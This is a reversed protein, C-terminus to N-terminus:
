KCREDLMCAAVADRVAPMIDDSGSAPQYYGLQALTKLKRWLFDPSETVARLADALAEDTRHLARL